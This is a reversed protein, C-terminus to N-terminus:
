EGKLNIKQDTDGSSPIYPAPIKGAEIVQRSLNATWNRYARLEGDLENFRRRFYKQDEQRSAKEADLAKQLEEIRNLLTKVSIEAGEVLTKAGEAIESDGEASLKKVESKNKKISAWIIYITNVSPVVLALITLWDSLTM